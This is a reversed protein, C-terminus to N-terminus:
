VVRRGTIETPVVRIWHRRWMQHSWPVVNAQELHEVDAWDTVEQARGKVLVSWGTRHEADWGDIEFAVPEALVAAHLKQGDLTRFVVADDVWRYNVPLVIVSDDVLFGIRGIPTAELLDLCEAHPIVELGAHDQEAM